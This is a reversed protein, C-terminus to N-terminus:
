LSLDIEYFDHKVARGGFVEKLEVLAQYIALM